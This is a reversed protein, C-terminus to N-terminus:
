RLTEDLARRAAHYEPAWGDETQADAAEIVAIMALVREPSLAAIYEPHDLFGEMGDDAWTTEPGPTAARALEAIQQLTM